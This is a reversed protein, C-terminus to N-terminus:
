FYLFSKNIKIKKELVNVRNLGQFPILFHIQKKINNTNTFVGAKGEMVCVLFM